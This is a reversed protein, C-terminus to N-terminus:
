ERRYRREKNERTKLIFKRYDDYDHFSVYRGSQVDLCNEGAAMEYENAAVLIYATIGHKETEQLITKFLEGKLEIVNDISMGSDSADLLLWLEKEGRQESESLRLMERRCEAAVGGLNLRITEGESSCMLASAARINGSWIAQSVSSSGGDHLNNYYIYRVRENGLQDTAAGLFTSKGCGNCGVLVSVGPLLGIRGKKFIYDKKEYYARKVSVIRRTEVDKLITM